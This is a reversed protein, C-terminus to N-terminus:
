RILIREFAARFGFQILGIREALKSRTFPSNSRMGNAYIQNLAFYFTCSLLVLVIQSESKNDQKGFTPSTQKKDKM